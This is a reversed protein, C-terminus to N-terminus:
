PKIGGLQLVRRFEAPTAPCVSLRSNRVLAMNATTPDNKLTELSVPAALPQKPILEVCSWDGEEATPDPYAEKKVQALGVVEKGTVSHYYLVLDGSKMTRLNNRAQYNRVGTWVARGDAVFQSWAYAAPEQKVVWYQEVMARWCAEFRRTTLNPHLFIERM